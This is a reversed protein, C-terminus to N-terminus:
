SRGTEEASLAADSLTWKVVDWGTTKGSNLEDARAEAKAKDRWLSDTEAPEYNSFVVAYVAELDPREEPGPGDAVSLRARIAAAIAMAETTTMHGTDSSSIYVSEIADLLADDDLGAPDTAPRAAASTVSWGRLSLDAVVYKARIDREVIHSTCRLAEAVVAVSLSTESTM